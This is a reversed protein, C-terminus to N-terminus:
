EAAAVNKPVFESADARLSTLSGPASRAPIEPLPCHARVVTFKLLQRNKCETLMKDPDGSINNVSVIRDGRLVARESCSAVCQRNWADVAGEPRVGEVLLVNGQNSVNLGLETSDAKRLTFSFVGGPFTTPTMEMAPTTPLSSALSLPTPKTSPDAAIAEALSLPSPFPFAPVEPLPAYNELQGSYTEPSARTSLPSASAASSGGANTTVSAPSKLGGPSSGCLATATFGSGLVSLKSALDSIIQKIQENQQELVRQRELCLTLETALKENHQHHQLQAQAMMQRGKQWIEEMKEGVKADVDKMLTQCLTEVTESRPTVAPVNADHGNSTGNQTASRELGPPPPFPASRNSATQAM